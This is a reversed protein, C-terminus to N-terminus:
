RAAPPHAADKRGRREGLCRWVGPCQPLVTLVPRGAILRPRVWGHTLVLDQPRPVTADRDLAIVRIGRAELEEVRVEAPFQRLGDLEIFRGHWGAATLGVAAAAGIIGDETGGHGSLVLGRCAKRADDRTVVRRTCALGFEALGSLAPAGEAALCLGPDSGAAAQKVLHVAARAALDEIRSGNGGAEIVICAASNHSTFPIAPDVLLQQRVVGLLRCDQPLEGAFWRAVKGTGYDADLSDTDDFGILIKM